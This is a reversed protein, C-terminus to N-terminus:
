LRYSCQFYPLLFLCLNKERRPSKRFSYQGIVLNYNHKIALSLLKCLETPDDQLDVNARVVWDAVSNNLACALAIHQGFNRSLDFIEVNAVSAHLKTLYLMSDDTSGDNVFLFKVQLLSTGFHTSLKNFAHMIKTYFDFALRGDNFISTIINVELSSNEM